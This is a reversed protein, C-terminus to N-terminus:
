MFQLSVPALRQNVKQTYPRMHTCTAVIMGSPFLSVHVCYHSRERYLLSVSDPGTQCKQPKRSSINVSVYLLSTLNM